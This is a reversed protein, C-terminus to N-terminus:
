APLVRQGLCASTPDPLINIVYDYDKYKPVVTWIEFTTFGMAPLRKIMDEFTVHRFDFLADERGKRLVIYKKDRSGVIIKGMPDIEIM